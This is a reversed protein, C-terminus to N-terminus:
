ELELMLYSADIWLRVQLFLKRAHAEVNFGHHPPNRRRLAIPGGDARTQPPTGAAPTERGVVLDDLADLVVDEVVGPHVDRQEVDVDLHATGTTCCVGGSAELLDRTCLIVLFLM